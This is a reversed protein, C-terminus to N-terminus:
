RVLGVAPTMEGPPQAADLRGVPVEAEGGEQRQAFRLCELSGGGLDFLYFDQLSTLAPDCTLGRGILNAEEDGSLLRIELGTQKRVRARFEAGNVADRVASTAVLQVRAPHLPAAEALLDGIAALGRAMGEETLQPNAAAIGASIRAEITHSLLTQLGGEPAPAAVLVKISNSGIDVVAVSPANM